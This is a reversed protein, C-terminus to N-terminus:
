RMEDRKFEAPLLSFIYTDYLEGSNDRSNHRLTAEHLFGLRRPIAASRINRTDCRIEVRNARLDDFVMRCLLRVAETMFGQGEASKRLWYGIEFKPITWDIRHLGSGGLLQNTGKQWIGVPLDERLLWRAAMRRASEEADEPTQTKDVWPLWLRLYKRSSEIAEWLAAGDGPRYPRLVIREGILEEPLTHALQQFNTEPMTKM